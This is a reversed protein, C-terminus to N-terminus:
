ESVASFKVDDIDVFSGDAERQNFVISLRAEVSDAPAEVALAHEQWTGKVSSNDAVVIEKFSLMAPGGFYDGPNRYFEIKMTVRNPSKTLPSAVPVFTKLSARVSEGANVDIGQYIGSYNEANSAQGALRLVWSGNRSKDRTPAVNPEAVMQNGFVHWGALSGGAEEFNGNKLHRRQANSPKYVRVWDVLLQYSHDRATSAAERPEIAFTLRMPKTLKPLFDGVEDSYFVTHYVDDVYFRLQDHTWEVAYTHFGKSFLVLSEGVSSRQPISRTDHAFPQAAGWHFDSSSVSPVSSDFTAIGIDGADPWPGDPLLRIATNLDPAAPFKTRVEWRGFRQAHKSVMPGLRNTTVGTGSRPEVVLQGNEVKPLHYQPAEPIDWKSEDLTNFDDHWVLKWGPPDTEEASTVDIPSLCTLVLLLLLTRSMLGPFHLVFLSCMTPM